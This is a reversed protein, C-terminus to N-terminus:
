DRVGRYRESEETPEPEFGLAEYFAYVRDDFRASLQPRSEAAAEVLATGVGQGRRGPRVAVAVIENRDLALAGLVRDEEVAVLWTPAECLDLMAANCISRAALREEDTRPSRIRM